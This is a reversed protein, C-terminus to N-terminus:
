SKQILFPERRLPGQLLSIATIFVSIRMEEWQGNRIMFRIHKRLAMVIESWVVIVPVRDCRVLGRMTVRRWGAYTRGSGGTLYRSRVLVYIRTFVRVDKRDRRISRCWSAVTREPNRNVDRIKPTKPLSDWAMQCSPLMTQENSSDTFADSPIETVHAMEKALTHLSSNSLGCWSTHVNVLTTM